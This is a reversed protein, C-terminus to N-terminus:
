FLDRYLLLNEDDFCVFVIEDFNADLAPISTLTDHAIRAAREKPFGYVGTSINPFALTRIGNETALAIVSRYCSALEDDEGETGGQWIPGVTHIIFRASKIAFAPTIVAKGAPLSGIKAIIARCAAPLEPGSAAHIAGDVGGGGALRSNAANVIADAALRTIDAKIVTYKMFKLITIATLARLRAHPPVSTCGEGSYLSEAEIGKRRKVNRASKRYLYWVHQLTGGTYVRKHM